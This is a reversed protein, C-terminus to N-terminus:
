SRWDREVEDLSSLQSPTWDNPELLPVAPGILRQGNVTLERWSNRDRLHEWAIVEDISRPLAFPVRLRQGEEYLWERPHQATFEAVRANFESMRERRTTTDAFEEAWEPSGMLEVLGAHHHPEITRLYVQGNATPLLVGISLRRYPHTPSGMVLGSWVFHSVIGQSISVQVEQRSVDALVARGTRRSWRRGVLGATAASIGALVETQREPALVPTDLAIESGLPRRTVYGLGGAGWVNVDDMAFGSHPGSLGMPTVAVMVLSKSLKSLGEVSTPLNLESFQSPHLDCLLVDALRFIASLDGPEQLIRRGRDFWASEFRDLRRNVGVRLQCVDAGCAAFLLGAM